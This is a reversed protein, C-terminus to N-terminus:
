DEPTDPLVMAALGEIVLLLCLAVWAGHRFLAVPAVLLGCLALLAGVAVRALTLM